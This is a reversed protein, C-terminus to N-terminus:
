LRKKVQAAWLSFGARSLHQGDEVFLETRPKGDAGLM